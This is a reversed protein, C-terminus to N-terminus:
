LERAVISINRPDLHIHPNGYPHIDGESRDLRAPVDLMTVYDSAFFHGPQGTQIRGNAAQRLLLPLWGIELDAGTCVLLEARRAQAMLSPRAQIRHPDQLGSTASNVTVLDGGLAEVLAAWEPECTLVRLDALAPGAAAVWSGILLYAATLKRVLGGLVSPRWARGCEHHVTVAM